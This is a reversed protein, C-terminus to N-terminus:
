DSESTESDTKEKYATQTAKLYNEMDDVAGKPLNYKAMLYPALDPLGGPIPYGALTYLDQENIDLASAIKGLRDPTNGPMQEGRELRSLASVDISAERGLARISLGKRERARKIYEGLETRKVPAMSYDKIKNEAHM